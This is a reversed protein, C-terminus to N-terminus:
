QYHLIMMSINYLCVINYYKLKKVNLVKKLIHM